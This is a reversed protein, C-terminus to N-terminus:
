RTWAAAGAPLAAGLPESALVLEGELPLPEGCVNVSCVVEGRSFVLTGAAM